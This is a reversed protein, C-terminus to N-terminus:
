INTLNIRDKIVESYRKATKDMVGDEYIGEESIRFVKYGRNMLFIDRLIDKEQQEENHWYVGDFEIIVKISPICFDVFMNSQGLMIREDTRLGFPKENEAYLCEKQLEEPLHSIIKEFLQKSVKSYGIDRNRMIDNWRREGEERGYEDIYYQKTSHYKKLVSQKERNKPDSYYERMKRSYEERDRTKWMDKICTEYVRRSEPDKWRLEISESLKKSYTDERVACDHCLDIEGLGSKKRERRKLIINYYQVPEIFGCRDCVKQVRRNSMPAIRETPVLYYPITMDKRKEYHITKNVTPLGAYFPDTQKNKKILIFNNRILTKEL